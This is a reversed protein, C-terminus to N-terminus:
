DTAECIGDFDKETLVVVADPNDTDPAWPLEVSAQVGQFCVQLRGAASATRARLTASQLQLRGTKSTTWSICVEVGPRAILGSVSGEGLESPVAKLLEIKGQHSQVICEALGAVYGFNGDIQFPPHAAFLNPYLGGILPGRDVSMDRFFLRLLDSTKAPQGLRARLCLKWALSWGTSADGREDLSRSVADSLRRDLGWDGPYAFFLHSLHRHQPDVQPHDALWEPIMGDRGPSPEPIRPLAKSAAVAVEDGDIGLREALSIIM